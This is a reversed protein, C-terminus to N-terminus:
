GAFRLKAFLAFPRRGYPAFRMIVQVLGAGPLLSCGPMKQALSLAKQLGDAEPAIQQAAHARESTKKWRSRRTLGQPKV